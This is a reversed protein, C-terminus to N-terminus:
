LLDDYQITPVTLRESSLTAPGYHIGRAALTEATDCVYPAGHGSQDITIDAVVLGRDSTPVWGWWHPSIGTLDPNDFRVQGHGVAARCGLEKALTRNILRSAVACNGGSPPYDGTSEAAWIPEQEHRVRQVLATVDRYLPTRSRLGNFFFKVPECLTSPYPPLHERM